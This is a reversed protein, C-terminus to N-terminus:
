KLNHFWYLGLLVTVAAWVRSALDQSYKLNESWGFNDGHLYTAEFFFYVPPALTLLGFLLLYPKEPQCHEGIPPMFAFCYDLAGVYLIAVVLGSNRLAIGHRPKDETKKPFDPGKSSPAHNNNGYLLFACLSGILELALVSALFTRGLAPPAAECPASSTLLVEIITM